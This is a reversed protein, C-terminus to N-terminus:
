DRGTHDLDAVLTDGWSGNTSGRPGRRKAGSGPAFHFGDPWYCRGQDEAERAAYAEMMLGMQQPQTSM